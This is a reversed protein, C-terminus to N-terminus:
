SRARAGPSGLAAFAGERQRIPADAGRRPARTQGSRISAIHGPEPDYWMMGNNLVVGLGPVTVGSGFRAGLTATLSVMNRESDIVNVHTTHSAPRMPPAPTARPHAQTTDGRTGPRSRSSRRNRRSPSARQREDVYTKANLDRSIPVPVSGPDGLFRFRDSYAMRLAEAILHLRKPSAHDLADLAFGDLLQLAFAVTPGGSNELALM